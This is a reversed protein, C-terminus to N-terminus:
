GFDSKPRRRPLVRAEEGQRLPRSLSDLSICRRQDVAWLGGFDAVFWLRAPATDAHDSIAVLRYAKERSFQPHFVRFYLPPEQPAFALSM